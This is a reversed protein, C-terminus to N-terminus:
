RRRLRLGAGLGAIGLLILTSPEPIQGGATLSGSSVYNVVSPNLSGDGVLGFNFALDETAAGDTNFATGLSLEEGAGLSTVGLFFTENLLETTGAGGAGGTAGFNARWVDYDEATVMGPTPDNPLTVDQGLNDRWVTYDAADVVSDDNYDGDASANGAPGAEDWGELSSDGAIDGPDDGDVADHNQDDLSNWGSPNLFGGPSSIEYYSLDVAEGFPNVIKIEGTTTNVELTPVPLAEAFGVGDFFTRNDGGGFSPTNEDHDIFVSVSGGDAVTAFGLKAGYLVRNGDVWDSYDDTGEGLVNLGLVEQTGGTVQTTANVEFVGPTTIVYDTLAGSALGAQVNWRRSPNNTDWFFAYIDYIGATPITFDIQLEDVAETRLAQLTNGENGFNLTDAASGTEETLVAGAGRTTWGGTADDAIAAGGSLFVNTSPSVSLDADIYTIQAKARPAMWCAVALVAILGCTKAMNRRRAAFFGVAGLGLLLLSNPEPIAGVAAAFAGPGNFDDFITRFAALDNFNTLQNGTVDGLLYSEADTLGSLDQNLGRLVVEYDDVDIDSDNDFDGFIVPSGGSYEVTVPVTFGSANLTLNVVVDEFPSVTWVDGFDLTALGGPGITAGDTGAGGDVENEALSNPTESTVEWMDDDFGGGNDLNGTISSWEAPDLAGAGSAISVANIVYDASSTISLNGTTRDITASLNTATTSAPAYAVGDFWSRQGTGNVDDIFVEIQGGTPNTTGVPAVLMVRNGEVTAGEIGPFGDQTNPNETNDEPPVEWNTFVGLDGAIGNTGVRDYAQNMDPNSSLGARVDWNDGTASWWVVYVDYSTADNLGTLTQTLEPADEGDGSEYISGSAGFANTSADRVGWLDNSYREPDQTDDEVIAGSPTLNVPAFFDSADVYTLGQASAGCSLAVCVLAAALSAVFSRIVDKRCLRSFM